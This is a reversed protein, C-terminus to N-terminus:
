TVASSLGLEETHRHAERGEWCGQRHGGGNWRGNGVPALTGGERGGRGGSAFVKWPAHTTVGARKEGLRKPDEDPDKRSCYGRATQRSGRM